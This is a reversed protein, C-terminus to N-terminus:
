EELDEQIGSQLGYFAKLQAAPGNRKGGSGGNYSDATLGGGMVRFVGASKNHLNVVRNRNAGFDSLFGGDKEYSKFVVVKDDRKVLFEMVDETKVPISNFSRKIEVKLYLSSEDSEVVTFLPEDAVLGKLNAFAVEPSVKFTWPPEYTALQKINATSVCNNPQGPTPKPCGQIKRSTATPLRESAEVIPAMTDSIGNSLANSIPAVTDGIEDTLAYSILAPSQVLLAASSALFSLRSMKESRARLVTNRDNLIRVANNKLSFCTLSFCNSTPLGISLLALLLVRKTM